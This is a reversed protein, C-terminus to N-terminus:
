SGTENKRMLKSYLLDSCFMGKRTYPYCKAPSPWCPKAALCSHAQLKSFNGHMYMNLTRRRGPTQGGGGRGGLGAPKPVRALQLSKKPM